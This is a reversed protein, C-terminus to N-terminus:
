KLVQVLPGNFTDFESLSISGNAPTVKITNATPPLPPFILPLPWQIGGICARLEEKSLRALPRDHEESRHINM